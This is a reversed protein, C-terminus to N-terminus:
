GAGRQDGKQKRALEVRQRLKDMTQWAKAAIDDWREPENPAVEVATKLCVQIWISTDKDIM